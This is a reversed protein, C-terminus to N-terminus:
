SQRRAGLLSAMNDTAQMYSSLTKAIFCLYEQQSSIFM